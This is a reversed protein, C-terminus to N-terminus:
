ECEVEVSDIHKKAAEIREKAIDVQFQTSYLTIEALRMDCDTNSITYVMAFNGNDNEAEVSEIDGLQSLQPTLIKQFGSQVASNTGKNWKYKSRVFITATQGGNEDEDEDEDDFLNIDEDDLKNSQHCSLVLGVMALYFLLRMM